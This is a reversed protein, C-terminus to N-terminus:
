FVVKAAKPSSPAPIRTSEAPTLGLRGRAAALSKNLRLASMTLCLLLKVVCHILFLLFSTGPLVPPASSEGSGSSRPPHSARVLALVCILPEIELNSGKCLLPPHVYGEGSYSVRMIERCSNTYWPLGPATLLKSNPQRDSCEMFISM